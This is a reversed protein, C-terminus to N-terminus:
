IICLILRYLCWWVFSTALWLISGENLIAFTVSEPAPPPLPPSPSLPLPPSPLPPLPPSPSLPLPPPPLPLPPLPPSPSFSLSLSLPLSSLSLSIPPPLACFVEKDVGQHCCRISLMNVSSISKVIYFGIFWIINNQASSVAPWMVHTGPQFLAHM